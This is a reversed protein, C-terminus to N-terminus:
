RDPDPSVTHARHDLQIVFLAGGGGVIVWSAATNLCVSCSMEQRRVWLKNLHHVYITGIERLLM